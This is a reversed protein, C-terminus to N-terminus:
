AKKNILEKLEKISEKQEAKSEKITDILTDMKVIYQEVKMKLSQVENYVNDFQNLKTEIHNLRQDNLGVLKEREQQHSTHLLTHQNIDVQIKKICDTHDNHRKDNNDDKEKANKDYKTNYWLWATLMIGLYPTLEKIIEGITGM